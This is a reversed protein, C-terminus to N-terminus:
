QRSGRPLFSPDSGGATLPQSKRTLGDLIIPSNTFVVHAILENLEVDGRDCWEALIPQRFLWVADPLPAIDLVPKETVLIGEYLGTLEHPGKFGRGELMDPAPREAIRLM